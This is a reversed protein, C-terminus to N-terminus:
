LGPHLVPNITYIIKSLELVNSRDTYGYIDAVGTDASPKNSWSPDGRDFPM